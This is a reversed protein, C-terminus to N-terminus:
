SGAKAKRLVIRHDIYVGREADLPESYTEFGRAEVVLKLQPDRSAPSYSRGAWFQGDEVSRVHCMVEQETGRVLKVDADKIPKGAVDVVVGAVSVSNECGLVVLLMSAFLFTLHSKCKM